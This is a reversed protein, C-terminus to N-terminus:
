KKRRAVSVKRQFAAIKDRDPLDVIVRRGDGLKHAVEWGAPVPAKEDIVEYPVAVDAGRPALYDELADAILASRSLQRLRAQEDIRELLEPDLKLSILRKAM